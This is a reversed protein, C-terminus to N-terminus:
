SVRRLDEGTKRPCEPAGGDAGSTTSSGSSCNSTASSTSSSMRATDYEIKDLDQQQLPHVHARPPVEPPIIAPKPEKPEEYDYFINSTDRPLNVDIPEPDVMAIVTDGGSPLQHQEPTDPSEKPSEVCITVVPRPGEDCGGLIQYDVNTGPSIKIDSAKSPDRPEKVKTEDLLSTFHALVFVLLVDPPHSFLPLSLSFLFLFVRTITPAVCECVCALCHLRSYLQSRKTGRRSPM